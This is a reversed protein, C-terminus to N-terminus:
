RTEAMHLRSGTMEQNELERKITAVDNNFTKSKRSADRHTSDEVPKNDCWLLTVPFLTRGLIYRVLM